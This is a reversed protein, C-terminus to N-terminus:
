AAERRRELEFRTEMFTYHDLLPNGSSNWTGNRHWSFRRWSRGLHQEISDAAQPVSGDARVVEVDTWFMDMASLPYQKDTQFLVQTSAVSFVGSPLTVDHLVVYLQMGQEHVEGSIGTAATLEALHAHLIDIATV